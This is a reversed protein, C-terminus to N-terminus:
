DFKESIAPVVQKKRSVIGPLNIESEVLEKDFSAAIKEAEEGRVYAISNSELINTAVLMYAAYGNEEILEDMKNILDAKRKSIDGLDVINVQGVRLTDQGFEFSKADSELVELDSKKDPNAGSKLLELGYEEIDVGALEALMKAIEQDEPTSTPSKFLLTDSIIASLMMGAIDKPIEVNKEEYLKTVISCTCGIPEARYFLPGATQFNAIKHHDVVSYIEQDKIDSISQQFENHDVLAVQKCEGSAKEIVRPMEVGFTNLAFKTEESAEGLACAEADKGLENLLNAFSIASAISDTDPNKHGFVLIDKM